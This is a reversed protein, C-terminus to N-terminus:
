KLHAPVDKYVDTFLGTKWNPLLEKEATAFAKMVEKQCEDRWQKDRTEDWIEQKELYM